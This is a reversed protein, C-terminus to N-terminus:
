ALRITIIGTGGLFPSGVNAPESSRTDAPHSGAVTGGFGDPQQIPVLQLAAGDRRPM